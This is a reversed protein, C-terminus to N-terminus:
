PVGLSVGARAEVSLTLGGFGNGQDLKLLLLNKGPKLQVKVKDEGPTLARTVKHDHVKQGSLWAQIGDDSGIALTAPQDASSDITVAFYYIVNDSGTKSEAALRPLDVVPVGTPGPQATIATWSIKKGGKGEYTASQDVAGPSKEPGFDVSRHEPKENPFPGLAKFNAAHLTTEQLSVLYALLDAADQATVNKLVLEPMLSKEQKVLEVIQKRPVQLTTGEVTKLVVREDNQDQLFGAYVKGQETEVVYPVYEPAIGASPKMITELLANREYKRGIQSLDPGIDAGKGKVRHCKNCSAAGSRLFVGEGRGANGQLALIQDSTFIQGLTKPRQDAPIFKEYLLRVNVDPHEIAAAVARDALAQDLKKTDIL